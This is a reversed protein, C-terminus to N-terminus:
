VCIQVVGTHICKVVRIMPNYLLWGNYTTTSSTPHARRVLYGPCLFPACACGVFQAPRSRILPHPPAYGIPTDNLDRKEIRGAERVRPVMRTTMMSKTDPRGM